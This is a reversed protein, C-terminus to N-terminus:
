ASGSTKRDPENSSPGHYKNKYGPAISPLLCTVAYDLAITALGDASINLGSTLPHIYNEAVDKTVFFSSRKTIGEKIRKYLEDAMCEINQNAILTFRYAGDSSIPLSISRYMSPKVYDIFTRNILTKNLVSELTAALSPENLFKKLSKMEALLTGPLWPRLQKKKDSRVKRLEKEREGERRKM